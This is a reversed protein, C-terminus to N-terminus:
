ILFQADLIKLLDTHFATLAIDKVATNIIVIALALYLYINRYRMGIKRAYWSKEKHAPFTKKSIYRLLIEVTHSIMFWLYLVVSYPVIPHYFFSLLIKGAFLAEVARTGGCGPCYFGTVMHFACPYLLKRAVADPLAHFIMFLATGICFLYLGGIYLNQELKTEEEQKMGVGRVIGRM